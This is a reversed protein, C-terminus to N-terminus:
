LSIGDSFSVSLVHEHGSDVYPRAQARRCEHEAGEDTRVSASHKISIPLEDLWKFAIHAINTTRYLTVYCRLELFEHEAREYCYCVASPRHDSPSHVTRLGASPVEAAIPRVHEAVIGRIVIALNTDAIPLPCYVLTVEVEAGGSETADPKTLAAHCDSTATTSRDGNKTEGATADEM